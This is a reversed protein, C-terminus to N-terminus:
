QDQLARVYNVVAWKAEEEPILKMFDPRDAIGVFSLYYLEGDTYEEMYKASLDGPPTKMNKSMVGDGKGKKGHCSVCHRNFNRLGIMKLSADDKYPNEKNQYEAPVEKKTHEQKTTKTTFSIHIIAWLAIVALKFLHKKM